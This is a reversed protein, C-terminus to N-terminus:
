INREDPVEESEADVVEGEVQRPGAALEERKGGIVFTFEITPGKHEHEVRERWEDPRRNGLWFRQAKNDGNRGSEYLSSVMRDDARDRARIVADSFARFREMWQYVTQRTIKLKDAMEQVTNSGQLTDLIDCMAPSYQLPRGLKPKEQVLEATGM